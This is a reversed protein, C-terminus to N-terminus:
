AGATMTTYQRVSSSKRICPGSQLAVYLLECFIRCNISAQQENVRNVESPNTQLPCGWNWHIIMMWMLSAMQPTYGMSVGVSTHTKQQSTKKLSSCCCAQHAAMPQAKHHWFRRHKHLSPYRHASPSVPLLLTTPLAHKTLAMASSHPHRCRAECSSRAFRHPPPNTVQWHHFFPKSKTSQNHNALFWKHKARSLTEKCCLNSSDAFHIKCTAVEVKGLM